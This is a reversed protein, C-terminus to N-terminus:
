KRAIKMKNKRSYVQTLFKEAARTWVEEPYMEGINSEGIVDGIMVNAFDKANRYGRTDWNYGYKDRIYAMAGRMREQDDNKQIRMSDEDMPNGKVMKKSAM